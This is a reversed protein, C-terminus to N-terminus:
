VAISSTARMTGAHIVGDPCYQVDFDAIHVADFARAESPSVFGFWAVLLFHSNDAMIWVETRVIFIIITWWRCVKSNIGESLMVHSDPHYM